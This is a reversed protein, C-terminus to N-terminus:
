IKKHLGTVSYKCHVALVKPYNYSTTECSQRSYYSSAESNGEISEFSEKGVFNECMLEDFGHLRHSNLLCLSLYVFNACLNLEWDWIGSIHKISIHMVEYVKNSTSL